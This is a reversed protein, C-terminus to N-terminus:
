FPPAATHPPLGTVQRAAPGHSRDCDSPHALQDGDIPLPAARGARSGSRVAPDQAPRNPAGREYMVEAWDRSKEPESLFLKRRSKKGRSKEIWRAVTNKWFHGVARDLKVRSPSPEDVAPEPFIAIGPLFVLLACHLPNEIADNQRWPDKSRGFDPLDGRCFVGFDPLGWPDKRISDLSGAERHWGIGMIKPSEKALENIALERCKAEAKPGEIGLEKIAQKRNESRLKYQPVPALGFKTMDVTVRPNTRRGSIRADLPPEVNRSIPAVREREVPRRRAKAFVHAYAAAYNISLKKARKMAKEHLGSLNVCRVETKGGRIMRARKRLLAGFAEAEEIGKKESRKKAKKRLAQAEDESVGRPTWSMPVRPDFNQEDNADAEIKARVQGGIFQNWDDKYSSRGLTVSVKGHKSSVKGEGALLRANPELAAFTCDFKERTMEIPRVINLTEKIYDVLAGKIAKSAYNAGPSMALAAMAVSLLEEYRFRGRQQKRYFKTTEAKALPVFDRWDFTIERVIPTAWSNRPRDEMPVRRAVLGAPVAWPDRCDLIHFNM